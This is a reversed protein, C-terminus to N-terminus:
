AQQDAQDFGHNNRDLGEDRSYDRDVSFDGDLDIQGNAGPNEEFKKSGVLRGL